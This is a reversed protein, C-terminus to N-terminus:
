HITPIRDANLLTCSLPDLLSKPTVSSELSQKLREVGEPLSAIRLFM